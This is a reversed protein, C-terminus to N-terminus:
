PPSPASPCFNKRRGDRTSERECVSSSSSSATLATVDVWVSALSSTLSEQSLLWNNNQLKGTDMEREGPLLEGSERHSILQAEHHLTEPISLCFM